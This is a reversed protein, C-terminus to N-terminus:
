YLIYQFSSAIPVTLGCVASRVVDSVFIQFQIRRDTSNSSDRMSIDMYIEMDMDLSITLDLTICLRRRDAGHLSTYSSHSFSLYTSRSSPSSSPISSSSSFSRSLFSSSLSSSSISPIPCPIIPLPFRSTSHKKDYCICAEFSIELFRSILNSM